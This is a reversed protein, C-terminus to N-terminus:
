KKHTPGHKCPQQRAIRHDFGNYYIREHNKQQRRWIFASGIKGNDGENEQNILRGTVGRGTKMNKIAEQQDVM